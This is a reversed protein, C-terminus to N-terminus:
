LLRHSNNQDQNKSQLRARGPNAKFARASFTDAVFWDTRSMSGAAGHEYRPASCREDEVGGGHSLVAPPLRSPETVSLCRELSMVQNYKM